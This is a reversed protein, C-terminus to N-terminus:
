GKVAKVVLGATEYCKEAEGIVEPTKHRHAVGLAKELKTNAMRLQKQLMVEEGDTLEYAERLNRTERLYKVASPSAVVSSLFNTIDRSEHIVPLVKGGEGYLWSLLDRLNQLHSEPVPSELNIEELALTKLQEVNPIAKSWGLYFKINRQGIALLILSFDEKARGIDWDLHEKAERLMHYAIANKRVGQGRDGVQEEIDEVPHGERIMDAIYRAKAYSDWKKNGTIHRVGLYPLVEKRSPYVIAPLVKLDAEVAASIEHWSRVKLKQRLAADLLIMATALRRNGEVVTFHTTQKAIFNRFEASERAGPKPLLRAPIKQPVVVLPEEDFYGNMGMPDAIEELDFHEFLHQLVVAEDKGQVEEPLRPNAPDLHLREIPIDLQPRKHGAGAPAHKPM